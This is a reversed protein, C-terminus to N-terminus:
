IIDLKSAIYVAHTRNKADLKHIISSAYFKVTSLSLYVEQAIEGNHKGLKMLNLVEHETNTLPANKGSNDNEM